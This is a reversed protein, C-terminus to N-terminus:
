KGKNLNSLYRYITAESTQLQKAVQNVAGKLMFVGKQNLVSVISLKEDRTLRDVPINQNQLIDSIASLTLENLSEVLNEEIPENDIPLVAFNEEIFENPQCLQLIDNSIAAYKSGDFNICLMGVLNGAEDNIYMTSSRLTKNDRSQSKYNLRFDEKEFSRDAIAKLAFDTLPAGVDRGSIHNNAIAVIQKTKDTIDHLVVEYDPGLTAGLFRVLKSFQNLQSKNM